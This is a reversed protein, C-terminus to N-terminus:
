ASPVKRATESRATESDVFRAIPAAARRCLEALPRVLQHYAEDYRQSREPDPLWERVRPRRLAGAEAASSYLGIGLGALLAAGVATMNEDEVALVRRGTIDARAQMWPENRVVGGEVVVTDLRGPHWSELLELNARVSFAPAELLAQVVDARTHSTTLGFLAGPVPGTAWEPSAYRGFTPTAVVGTFAYPTPIGALLQEYGLEPATGALTRRAWDLLGGSLGVRAAFTYRGAVVDAYRSIGSGIRRDDDSDSAPVLLGEATGASDVPTDSGGRAAFAGCQRDHGALVVPTGAPLGTRAAAERGVTGVRSGSPLVEPMKGPDLGAAQIVPSSWEHYRQDWAMQRSALSPSTVRRGSLWLTVLDALPLWAAMREYVHPEHERVWMIRGVGWAPDAPHGVLRDLRTAGLASVLREVQAGSRPDQWCIPDRLVAGSEDVPAGTEGFSTSAVAAVSAGPAIASTLELLAAEVCRRLEDASLEVLRSSRTVPTARRSSALVSGDDARVAVAKVASTGIDVGVLCACKTV